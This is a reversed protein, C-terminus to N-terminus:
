YSEVMEKDLKQTWPWWVADPIMVLTYASKWKPRNRFALIDSGALPDCYLLKLRSHRWISVTSVPITTSSTCRSTTTFMQLTNSCRQDKHPSLSAPLSSLLHKIAPLPLLKWRRQMVASSNWTKLFFGATYTCYLCACVCKDKIDGLSLCVNVCVSIAFASIWYFM